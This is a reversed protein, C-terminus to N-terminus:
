ILVRVRISGARVGAVEVHGAVIDSEKKFDLRTPSKPLDVM